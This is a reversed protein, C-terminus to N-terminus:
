FARRIYLRLWKRTLPAVLIQVQPLTSPDGLESREGSSTRVLNCLSPGCSEDFLGATKRPFFALPAISKVQFRKNMKSDWYRLRGCIYVLSIQKQLDPRALWPFLTLSSSPPHTPPLAPSLFACHSRAHRGAGRIIIVCVGSYAVVQRVACTEFGGCLIARTNCVHGLCAAPTPRLTWWSSCPTTHGRSVFLPGVVWEWYPALTWTLISLPLSARATRRRYALCPSRSDM